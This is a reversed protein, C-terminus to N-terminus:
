EALCPVAEDLEGCSDKVAQSDCVDPADLLCSLYNEFEGTCGRDDAVQQYAGILDVCSDYGEGNQSCDDVLRQCYNEATPGGCGFLCVALM